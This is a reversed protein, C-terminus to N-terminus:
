EKSKANGMRRAVVVGAASWHDPSIGGRARGSGSSARQGPSFGGLLAAPDVDAKRALVVAEVDPSDPLMTIVIDSAAAVERATGAATAGQAVLEEVPGASRNHVRLPYGAALLNTAMPRGMIGLGIFGVPEM